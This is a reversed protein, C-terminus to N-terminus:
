GQVKPATVDVGFKSLENLAILLLLGLALFILRRSVAKAPAVSLLILPLVWAILGVVIIAYLATTHRDHFRQSVERSVAMSDKRLNDLAQIVRGLGENTAGMLIDQVEKQIATMITDPMRMAERSTDPIPENWISILPTFAIILSFIGILCVSAAAHLKHRALLVFLVQVVIFIVTFVELEALNGMLAWFIGGTTQFLLYGMYAVVLTLVVYLLTRWSILRFSKGQYDVIPQDRITNKYRIM